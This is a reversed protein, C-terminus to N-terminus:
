TYHGIYEYSEFLEYYEELLGRVRESSLNRRLVLDSYLFCVEIILDDKFIPKMSRLIEEIKFKAEEDM